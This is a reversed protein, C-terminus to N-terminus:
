LDLTCVYPALEGTREGGVNGNGWTDQLTPSSALFSPSSAFVALMFIFSDFGFYFYLFLYCSDMQSTFPASFVLLEFYRASM